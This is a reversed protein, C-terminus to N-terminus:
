LEAAISITCVDTGDRRIEGAGVPTGAAMSVNIGAIRTGIKAAYIAAPTLLSAGNGPVIDFTGVATVAITPTVRKETYNIIGAGFEDDWLNCLSVMQGTTSNFNHIEFYRQCTLLEDGYSKHPFDTATEGVELM